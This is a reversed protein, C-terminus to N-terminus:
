AFGDLFEQMLKAAAKVIPTMYEVDKAKKGHKQKVQCACDIDGLTSSVILFGHDTPSKWHAEDKATHTAVLTSSASLSLLPNIAVAEQAVDIKHFIENCELTLSVYDFELRPLLDCLQDSGRIREIFSIINLDGNEQTRSSTGSAKSLEDDMHYWTQLGTERETLYDRLIKTIPLPELWYDKHTRKGRIWDRDPNRALNRAEKISQQSFGAAALLRSYFQDAKKPVEDLFIKRVHWAMMMELEPWRGKILGLELFCNYLHCLAFIQPSANAFGLGMEELLLPRALSLKGRLTPITM